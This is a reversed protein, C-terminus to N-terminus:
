LGTTHSFALSHGHELLFKPETSSTAFFFVCVFFSFFGSNKRGEKQQKSYLSVQFFGHTPCKILGCFRSEPFVGGFSTKTLVEGM